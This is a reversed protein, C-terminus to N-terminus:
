MKMEYDHGSHDDEKQGIGKKREHTVKQATSDRVPVPSELRELAHGLQAVSGLVGATDSSYAPAGPSPAASASTPSFYATREAEWGTVLDATDTVPEQRNPDAGGPDAPQEDTITPQPNKNAPSRSAGTLGRSWELHHRPQLISQGTEGADSSVYKADARTTASNQEATQTGGAIIGQRIQFEREMAGKM